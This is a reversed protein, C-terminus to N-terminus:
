CHDDPTEELAVIPYDRHRVIVPVGDVVHPVYVVVAFQGAGPYKPDNVIGTSISDALSEKASHAQSLSAM